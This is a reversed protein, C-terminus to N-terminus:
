AVREFVVGTCTATNSASATGWTWTLVMAESVTSSVTQDATTNPLQINNGIQAATTMNHYVVFTPSWVASTGTSVCRLYYVAHWPRGAIASATASPGISAMTTGAVGGLRAMITFNPTGTTSATGYATMRYIAGAVADNAPITAIAIVTETTTNAVTTPGTSLANRYTTTGNVLKIDTGVTVSGGTSFNNDTKLTSAASRYFNTDVATSSGPGWAMKGNTDRTFRPQTDAVLSSQSTLDTTNVAVHINQNNSAFAPLAGGFQTGNNTNCNEIILGGTIGSEVFIHPGVPATTYNGIVNRLTANGAGVYLDVGANVTAVSGTAILVNELASRQPAWNIINQATSFGSYFSNASCYLHDVMIHSCSADAILHSGGNMQTSEMKCNQIYIGNPNNTNNTGQQIWLAGNLFSEFRCNEFHIQNTNDASFGYGSSAASNRLWVNPMSSNATTSGSNEFVIDEFRSDWFEVGGVCVDANSTLYLDRFIHNDAYYTEILMGTHSGGNMGLSEVSCYKRHTNSSVDTSPGSMRLLIGNASKTLISSKRGSGLLKVNNGGITLAPTAGNPTVKYTGPPFYVTGGGNTAALNITAQIASTDDAIGDGVANNDKVNFTASNAVASGAIGLNTRAQAPNTLDSLNNAAQLSDGSAATINADLTALAANLPVDWNETGRAIPTYTM